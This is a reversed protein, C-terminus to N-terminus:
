SVSDRLRKDQTKVENSSIVPLFKPTMASGGRECEISFWTRDIGDSLATGEKRKRHSCCLTHVTSLLLLGLISKRLDLGPEVM